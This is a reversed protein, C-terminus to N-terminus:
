LQTLLVRLPTRPPCIAKERGQGRKGGHTGCPHDLIDGELDLHIDEKKFGPLEAELLYRDGKDLIDTRFRSVRTDLGDFLSKEVNDLYQFLNRENRGFPILDFM